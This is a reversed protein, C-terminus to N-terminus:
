KYLFTTLYALYDIMSLLPDQQITPLSFDDSM